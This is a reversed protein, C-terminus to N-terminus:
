RKMEYQSAIRKLNRTLLLRVDKCGDPNTTVSRNLHIKLQRSPREVLHGM